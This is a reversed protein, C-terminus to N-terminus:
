PSAPMRLEPRKSQADVFIKDSQTEIPWLSERGERDKYTTARIVYRRGQYLRLTFHGDPRITGSSVSTWEPFDVDEVEVFGSEVVRGDPWVAVGDVSELSLPAPLVFNAIELRAGEKIEIVAAQNRDSTGPYFAPPFEVRESTAYPPSSAHLALLYRHPVLGSIEFRGEGDSTSRQYYPSGNLEQWKRTEEPILEVAVNTVPRGRDDVLRGKLTAPSPLTVVTQESQVPTISSSVRGRLQKGDPDKGSGAVIAYPLGEYADFSFEGNATAEQFQTHSPGYEPNSLVVSSEKAPKGDSWVVTGRIQRKVLPKPLVINVGRQEEGATLVIVQAESREVASPFYTRPYVSGDPRYTHPPSRLSVGVLYRGSPLSEFVYVGDPSTVAFPLQFSQRDLPSFSEPMIEVLQNEIPRGETDTIRGSIRGELQAFANAEACGREVLSVKISPPQFRTPAASASQLKVEYNGPPLGAIQYRGQEDSITEKPGGPGELIVRAGALPVTRRKALLPVDERFGLQGYVRAGPPATSLGKFFSLDEAANEVRRTRSCISTGFSNDPERDGYVVYRRNLEFPYGCGGGSDADTTVEVTGVAVGRFATEVQFRVRMTSRKFAFPFDAPDKDKPIDAVVSIDVVRGLFVGDSSGWAACPPGSELCSCALLPQFLGTALLLTAALVCRMIM